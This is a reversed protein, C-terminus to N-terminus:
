DDELYATDKYEKCKYAGTQIVQMDAKGTEILKGNKFIAPWVIHMKADDLEVAMDLFAQYDKTGMLQDLLEVDNKTHDLYYDM